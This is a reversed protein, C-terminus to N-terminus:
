FPKTYAKGTVGTELLPHCGMQGFVAIPLMRQSAAADQYCNGVKM